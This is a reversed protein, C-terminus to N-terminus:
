GAVALKELTGRCGPMAPRTAPPAAATPGSPAGPRASMATCRGADWASPRLRPQPHEGACGGAPLEFFTGIRPFPRPRGCGGMLRGLLGHRGAPAAGPLGAAGPSWPLQLDKALLAGRCLYLLGTGGALAAAAAATGQRDAAPQLGARLGAHGAGRLPVASRSGTKLGALTPSAHRVM